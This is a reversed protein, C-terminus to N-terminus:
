TSRIYQAWRVHRMRQCGYKAERYSAVHERRSVMRLRSSGLPYPICDGLPAGRLSPHPPPKYAVSHATPNTPVRAIRATDSATAARVCYATQSLASRVYPRVPDKCILHHSTRPCHDPATSPLCATGNTSSSQYKCIVRKADKPVTFSHPAVRAPKCTPATASSVNAIVLRTATPRCRALADPM